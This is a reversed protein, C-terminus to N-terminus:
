IQKFNQLQHLEVQHYWKLKHIIKHYNGNLNLLLYVLNHKNNNMQSM